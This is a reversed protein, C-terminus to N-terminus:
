RRCRSSSGSSRSSRSSPRRRAGAAARARGRVFDPAVISSVSSRPISILASSAPRASGCTPWGSATTAAHALVGPLLGAAATGAIRSFPVLIVNTALAYIGLSAAGLFRGILLSGLNRGAQYLLNEGFVNGAFGGLRRLSAVSFAASPRWPSLCWLLM